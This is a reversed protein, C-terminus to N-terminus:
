LDLVLEQSLSRSCCIMLRDNAARAQDSLMIDRHDPQGAIVKTECTGCFGSQCSFSAPIGADLLIDLITMGAPVTLRRGSRALVITFETDVGEGKSASFYEYHVRHPPLHAAAIRYNELMSSPGCCYFHAHPPSGEIISAIDLLRGQQEDDFHVHLAGKGVAALLELEGVFAARSRSKASYVLTWARATRNLQKAMACFPTVGIGGAIFVSHPADEALPFNNAPPSVTLVQGVQLSEHVYRSGGRSNPDLFVAIRYSELEDPGNLLSYSRALGNPLNLNLHAGASIEAIAGGDCRALEVSLVGEAERRITSVRV